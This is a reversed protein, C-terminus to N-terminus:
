ASWTRPHIMRGFRRDERVPPCILSTEAWREEQNPAEVALFRAQIELSEEVKGQHELAAILSRHAGTQQVNDLACAQRSWFELSKWKGQNCLTTCLNNLLRSDPGSQRDIADLFVIEAEAAEGESAHCIGVYELARLTDAHDCGLQISRWSLVNSYLSKAASLQSSNLCSNALSEKSDNTERHDHGLNKEHLEMSKRRYVLEDSYRAGLRCCEAITQLCSAKISWESSHDCSALIAESLRTAEELRGQRMIQEAHSLRYDFVHVHEEHYIAGCLTILRAYFVEAMASDRQFEAIGAMSRYNYVKKTNESADSTPCRELIEQWISIADEHHDFMALELPYDHQNDLTRVSNPGEMDKWCHFSSRGMELCAEGNCQDYYLHALEFASEAYNLSPYKSISLAKRLLDAATQMDNESQARYYRLRGNLWTAAALREDQGEVLEQFIDLSEGARQLAQSYMGREIDFDAAWCLLHALDLRAENSKYEYSTIVHVHPALADCVPGEAVGIETPYNKSLCALVAEQWRRTANENHLAIKIFRHVLRHIQFGQSGARATVLSFSLLVNLSTTLEPIDKLLSKPISQHDFMALTSLLEAARPKQQKIQDFSLKWSRFVSNVSEGDRRADDLEEDLFEEADEGRLAETYEAVSIGNEVIFAAAQSVALPLHDLEDVLGQVQSDEDSDSLTGELKSLFLMRAEENSMPEVAIPKAKKTLRSAVRSDRTTILVHGHLSRDPLYRSLNNSPDDLSGGSKYKGPWWHEINDANDIVLLYPNITRSLWSSVLELISEEPDDWGPVELLQAIRKYGQYFRAITGGYVWLVHADPQSQKFRYCYEIAIQSKRCYYYTRLRRM